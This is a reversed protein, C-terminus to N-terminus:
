TSTGAYNPNYDRDHTLLAWVIRVHKNALAVAAINANRRAQVAKMVVTMPITAAFGAAAGSLVQRPVSSM